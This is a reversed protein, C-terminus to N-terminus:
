ENVKLITHNCFARFIRFYNTANTVQSIQRL